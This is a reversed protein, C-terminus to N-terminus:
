LAALAGLVVRASREAAGDIHTLFETGDPACLDSVARVSVFRVGHNHAVQAIAASEMDVALLHPFDRRLEEALEATVFREGSGIAGERVTLDGAAGLLAQRLEADGDYTVPMGPVQGLAYGFARADAGVNVLSDSVVVDGVQVGKALGGASGASVLHVDRGYRAIAGAAADAANVMGIGTRVLVHTRGDVVIGRHEARGIVVPESVEGAQELFPAAEEEMAVLVVAVSGASM